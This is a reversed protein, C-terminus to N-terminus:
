ENRDGRSCQICASQPPLSAQTPLAREHIPPSTGMALPRDPYNNRLSQQQPFIPFAQVRTLLPTPYDSSSLNATLEAVRVGAHKGAQAAADVIPANMHTPETWEMLGSAWERYLECFRTYSYAGTLGEFREEWLLKRTVHPRTLERHVWEWDIPRREEAPVGPHPPFLLEELEEDSLVEPPPWSLGARSARRLCAGVTPHATNCSIAIERNSLGLEWKLRLVEQIKRM